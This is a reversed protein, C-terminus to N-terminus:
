STASARSDPRESASVSSSTRLQMASAGAEPVTASTHRRSLSSGLPLCLLLLGGWMSMSFSWLGMMVAICLHFGLGAALLGWRVRQPLLLTAALSIEIFLPVWTIMAVGVPNSVFPRLLPQLWGSAGFALSNTWYWMGTGDAWEAHPFKAVAAQFYIFSMQLRVVVLASTGALAWATRRTDSEEATQWHWRRRDGLAPVVLLLTLVTAAQDGGDGISISTFVSFAIYAHPLATLRPRWGSAVLLLVLVCAAQMWGIHARPVLCFAGAADIGRCTPHDGVTAVPRFLTATSSFALTAATGLAILTRSLGYVNTWPLPISTLM